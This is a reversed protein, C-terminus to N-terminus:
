RKPIAAPYFACVWLVDHVTGAVATELDRQGAVPHGIFRKSLRLATHDRQPFAGPWSARDLSEHHGGVVVDCTRAEIVVEGIVQM